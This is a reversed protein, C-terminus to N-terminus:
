HQFKVHGTAVSRNPVGRISACVRNLKLQFLELLSPVSFRVKAIVGGTSSGLVLGNAIAISRQNPLLIEVTKVSSPLEPKPRHIQARQFFRREGRYQKPDEYM